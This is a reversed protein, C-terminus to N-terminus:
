AFITKSNLLMYSWSRIKPFLQNYVFISYSYTNPDLLAEVLLFFIETINPPHRLQEEIVIDCWTLTVKKEKFIRGMIVKCIIFTVSLAIFFFILYLMAMISVFLFWFGFPYKWLGKYHVPVVTLHFPLCLHRFM